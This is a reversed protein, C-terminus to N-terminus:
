PSPGPPGSVGSWCGTARLLNSVGGLSDERSHFRSISTPGVEHIMFTLLVIHWESLPHPQSVNLSM